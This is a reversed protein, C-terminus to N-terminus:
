IRVVVIYGYKAWGGAWNNVKYLKTDYEKFLKKYDRVWHGLRFGWPGHWECMVIYKRAVRLMEKKAKKIRWPPVYLLCADTLILDVTKTPFGTDEATGVFAMCTKKTEIVADTNIDIGSVM